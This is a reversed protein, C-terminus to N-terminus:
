RDCIWQSYMRNVILNVKCVLHFSKMNYHVIWCWCLLVSLFLFTWWLTVACRCLLLVLLSKYNLMGDRVNECKGFIYNIIFTIHSHHALTHVMTCVACICLTYVSEVRCQGDCENAKQSGFSFIAQKELLCLLVATMLWLLASWLMCECETDTYIIGFVTRNHSMQFSIHSLCQM